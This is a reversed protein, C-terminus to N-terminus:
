RRYAVDAAPGELTCIVGCKPCSVHRYILSQIPNRQALDLVAQCNPCVPPHEVVRSLLDTTKETGGLDRFVPRVAADV